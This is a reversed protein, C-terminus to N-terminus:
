ALLSSGFNNGKTHDRTPGSLLSGSGSRISWGDKRYIGWNCFGNEFNCRYKYNGCTMEDSNDGCDDNFDCVYYSSICAGNGCQFGYSCSQVPQPTRCGILRVDGLALYSYQTQGYDTARFVITFNYNMRKLYAYAVLWQGQIVNIVDSNWIETQEFGTRDILVSLHSASRLGSNLTV